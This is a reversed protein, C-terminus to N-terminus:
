SHSALYDTYKKYEDLHESPLSGHCSNTKLDYDCCEKPEVAAGFERPTGQAKWGNGEFIDKGLVPLYDLDVTGLCPVFKNLREETYTSQWILDAFNVVLVPEGQGTLYKHADVQQKLYTIELAEMKKQDPNKLFEKSLKSLCYPRWMVIYILGLKKVGLDRLGTPLSADRVGVDATEFEMIQVPNKELFVPKQLDWVGSYLTLMTEFDWNKVSDIEFGHDAM